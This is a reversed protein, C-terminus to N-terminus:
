KKKGWITLEILLRGRPNDVTPFNVLLKSRTALVLKLDVLGYIPIAVKSFM